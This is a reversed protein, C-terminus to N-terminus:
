PTTDGEGFMKQQIIENVIQLLLSKYNIQVALPELLNKRKEKWWNTAYLLEFKHELKEDTYPSPHKHPLTYKHINM